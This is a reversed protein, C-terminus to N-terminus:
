GKPSVTRIEVSEGPKLEFVEVAEPEALVRRAIRFATAAVGVYLWGRSGEFVGRRLGTKALRAVLTASRSASVTRYRAV